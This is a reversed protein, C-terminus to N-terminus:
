LNLGQLSLCRYQEFLDLFEASPVALDLRNSDARVVSWASCRDLGGSKGEDVGEGFTVLTHALAQHANREHPRLHRVQLNSDQM